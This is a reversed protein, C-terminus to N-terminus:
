SIAQIAHDLRQRMLRELEAPYRLKFHQEALPVALDRYFDIIARAADALAARELPVFTPRLAALAEAPLTKDLKFYPDGAAEEDDFDHRLRALIVACRRLTELQGAAWWLQGRALATTFHSLDHWFWAIQRRLTEIQEATSVSNRGFVRNRSLVGTKDLLPRWLGHPATFDSALSISLEGETGDALIFFVIGLLDFDESFLLEGLQGLFAERGALFDDNADDAVVLGLDLDSWEDAAGHAHSGHVFAALIRPDAHCAALFRDLTTQHRPLSIELSNM